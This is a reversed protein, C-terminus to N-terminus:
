ASHASPWLGAWLHLAQKLDASTYCAYWYSNYCCWMIIIPRTLRSETISLYWVPTSDVVQPEDVSATLLQVNIKHAPMKDGRREEQNSCTHVTLWETPKETHDSYIDKRWHVSIINIDSSSYKEALSMLNPKGLCEFNM